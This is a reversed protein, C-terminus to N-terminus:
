CEGDIMRLVTLRTSLLIRDGIKVTEWFFSFILFIQETVSLFGEKRSTQVQVGCQWQNHLSPPPHKCLKVAKRCACMIYLTEAMFWPFFRAKTSDSVRFRFWPTNLEQLTKPLYAWRQKYWCRRPNLRRPLVAAEHINKRSFVVIKSGIQNENGGFNLLLVVNKLCSNKPLSYM